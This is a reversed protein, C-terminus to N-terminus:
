IRFHFFVRSWIGLLQDGLSYHFLMLGGNIPFSIHPTSFTLTGKVLSILIISKSDIMALNLTLCLPVGVSRNKLGIEMMM